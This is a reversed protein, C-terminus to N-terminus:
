ACCGFLALNVLTIEKNKTKNLKLIDCGNLRDM